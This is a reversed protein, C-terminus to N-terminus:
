LQGGWDPVGLGELGAGWYFPDLELCRGLHAAGAIDLVEVALEELEPQLREQQAHGLDHDAHAVAVADQAADILDLRGADRVHNRTPLPRAPVPVHAEVKPSRKQVTPKQSEDGKGGQRKEKEEERRKTKEQGKPKRARKMVTGEGGM